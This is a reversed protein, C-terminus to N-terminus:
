LYSYILCQVVTSSFSHDKLSPSGVLSLEVSVKVKQRPTIKLSHWLSTSELCLALRVPHCFSLESNLTALVALIQPATLWLSGYLLLLRSPVGLIKLSERQTQLQIRLYAHVVCPEVM